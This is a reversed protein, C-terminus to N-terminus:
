LPHNVTHSVLRRKPKEVAHEGAKAQLELVCRAACLVNIELDQEDGAWVVLIADGAFKFVDGSHVHIIDLMRKLYANVVSSMVHAGRHAIAATIKSYGSMDVFLLAAQCNYPTFSNRGEHRKCVVSRFALDSVFPKLLASWDASSREISRVAYTNEERDKDKRALTNDYQYDQFGATISSRRSLGPRAARRKFNLDDDASSKKANTGPPSKLTSISAPTLPKSHVAGPRSKHNMSDSSRTAHGMSTPMSSTMSRSQAVNNNSHSNHSNNRNSNSNSNNHNSNHNSNGSAVAGPTGKMSMSQALGHGGHLRRGSPLSAMSSASSSAVSSPERQPERRRAMQRDLASMNDADADQDATDFDDYEDHEAPATM